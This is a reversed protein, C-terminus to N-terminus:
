PQQGYKSLYSSTDYFRCLGCSHLTHSKQPHTGLRTIMSGRAQYYIARENKDDDEQALMSGVVDKIISLYLLLPKRHKLPVLIPPHLLYEKILECAKQCEDNWAHPENKRLLKFISECTSTLKAIFRSIYQLRGLFRRIEKESKPPPMDLIAKIKSPDFEIGRDSVLFGLLKGVTIGFTCKQPNLRLRYEKIREFFKRLNAIHGERDKFQVIMNDVDM